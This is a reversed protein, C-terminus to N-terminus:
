RSGPVAKAVAAVLDQDDGSGTYVVKGEQNVVVIFSTTPVEFARSGAGQDDYLPTFPPNHEALYRRVRAKSENVTINVGIMAVQDGYRRKVQDLQPLLRKCLECWTAWFEILTPKKGVVTGLDFPNGDLDHIAIRPAKSGVAIGAELQAVAKGAMPMMLALALGVRVM